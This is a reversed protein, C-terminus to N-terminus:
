KKIQWKETKSVLVISLVNKLYALIYSNNSCRRETSKIMVTHGNDVVLLSKIPSSYWQIMTGDSTICTTSMSWKPTNYSYRVMVLSARQVRLENWLITGDSTICTTTTSWKLTDYWWWHHVYYEYIMKSHHVYYKCTMKSYRTHITGDSTICTTSLPRHNNTLSDDSGTSNNSLILAHWTVIVPRGHCSM